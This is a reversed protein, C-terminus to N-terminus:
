NGFRRSALEVGGTLVMEEANRGVAIRHTGSAVHWHGTAAEFRALLRADASIGVRRSEGPELTVREFGLLRLRRGDPAATLYLQPVDAGARVGSNKVTFSATVTDGGAVILDGYEFATYSLGFGFANTTRFSSM